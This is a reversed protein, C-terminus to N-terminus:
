RLDTAGGVHANDLLVLTGVAIVDFQIPSLRSPSVMAQCVLQLQDPPYTIIQRADHVIKLSVFSISSSM